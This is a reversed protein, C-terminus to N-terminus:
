PMKYPKDILGLWSKYRCYNRADITYEDRLCKYLEPKNNALAEQESRVEADGYGNVALAITFATLTGIVWYNQGGYDNYDVYPGQGDEVDDRAALAQEREWVGRLWYKPNRLAKRAIGRRSTTVRENKGGRDSKFRKLAQEENVEDSVQKFAAFIDGIDGVTGKGEEKMKLAGSSRRAPKLLSSPAGASGGVPRFAAEPERSRLLASLANLPQSSIQEQSGHGSCALCALVLAIM